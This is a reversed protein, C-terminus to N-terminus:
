VMVAPAETWEAAFDACNDVLGQRATKRPLIETVQAM